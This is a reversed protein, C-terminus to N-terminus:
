DQMLGFFSSFHLLLGFLALVGAFWAGFGVCMCLLGFDCSGLHFARVCVFRIGFMHLLFGLLTVRGSKQKFFLFLKRSARAWWRALYIGM